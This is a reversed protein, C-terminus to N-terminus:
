YAYLQITKVCRFSFKYLLNNLLLTFSVTVKLEGVSSLLGAGYVRMEKDQICLGFEITFFYCQFWM